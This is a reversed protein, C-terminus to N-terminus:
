KGSYKKWIQSYGGEPHVGDAKMPSFQELAGTFEAGNNSAIQSLQENVGRLLVRYKNKTYKTKPFWISTGSGTGLLIVKAAGAKKLAQIQQGIYEFERQPYTADGQVEYKAGNSAGSSLLITAGKVSNTKLYNNILGLVMKPSYGGIAYGPAKGSDKVGVGISDGFVFVKSGPAPPTANGTLPVGPQGPKSNDSAPTGEPSSSPSSNQAPASNSGSGNPVILASGPAEKDLELQVIPNAYSDKAIEMTVTHRFQTIQHHIATIMYLGSIFVDFVLEQPGAQQGVSPYWFRIIRGVEMDTRGPVTIELKLTNIDMLKSLRQSIYQDPHLDISDETSDLVGPNLTALIPKTNASRVVNFPFLMNYTKEEDKVISTGDKKYAEMHVTDKFGFSHDYYYLADQKKILDFTFLSSTFHGLDQSQIIDLNTKFKINEVNSYDSQLDNKYNNTNFFYESFVMESELQNAILDELSVCYYGKTTEYFLFTPSKDRRTGISRKALWNICEIPSWMPSVFSLKSKHPTDGILLVNKNADDKENEAINEKFYRPLRLYEEWINYIIEDTTGTYKKSIKTINDYVAELSCFHLVYQQEKDDYVARNKVAYVSFAKEIKNLPDHSGDEAKSLGPTEIDMYIVEDGVIPFQGILNRTDRIAVNGYLAPTFIDEYINIEVMFPLLDLVAGDSTRSIKLSNVRVDGAKTLQKKPANDPEAM